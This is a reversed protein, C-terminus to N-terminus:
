PLTNLESHKFGRESSQAYTGVFAGGWSDIPQHSLTGHIGSKREGRQDEIEKNGAAFWELPAVLDKLNGLETPLELCLDQALASTTLFFFIIALIRLRTLKNKFIITLILHVLLNIIIIALRYNLSNFM